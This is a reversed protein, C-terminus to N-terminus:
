GREWLEQHQRREIVLQRGSPARGAKILLEEPNV